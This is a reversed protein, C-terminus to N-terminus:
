CAPAFITQSAVTAALAANRKAKHAPNWTGFILYDRNRVKVEDCWDKAEKLTSFTIPIAIDNQEKIRQGDMRRGHDIAVVVFMDGDRTVVNIM